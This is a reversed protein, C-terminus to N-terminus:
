WIAKMITRYSENLYNIILNYMLFVEEASFATDRNVMCVDLMLDGNENCYFKFPKYKTNESSLMKALAPENDPTLAQPSIQVRIMDFISNDLILASPLQQGKVTVHTRFVVTGNADNEVEEMQFATINNKDLYFKFEEAKKIM